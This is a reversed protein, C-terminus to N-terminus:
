DTVVAFLFPLGFLFVYKLSAQIAEKTFNQRAYTHFLAAGWFLFLVAILSYVGLSV